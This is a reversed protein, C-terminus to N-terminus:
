YNIILTQMVEAEGEIRAEIKCVGHEDVSLSFEKDGKFDQIVLPEM